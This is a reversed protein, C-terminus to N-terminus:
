WRLGYSTTRRKVVKRPVYRELRLLNSKGGNKSAIKRLHLVNEKFEKEDKFSQTKWFKGKVDYLKGKIM